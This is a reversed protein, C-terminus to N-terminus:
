RRRLPRLVRAASFEVLSAVALHARGARTWGSRGHVRPARLSPVSVQCRGLSAVLALVSSPRGHVRRLARLVPADILVLDAGHAPLSRLGAVHRMLWYYIAGLRAQRTHGPAAPPRAAWVVDAGRRWQTLLAPIVEPSDQLDAALVVAADGRAARCGRLIAAHSGGRKGLRISRVCPHLHGLEAIVTPTADRSGDDVIVWEWALDLRALTADLRTWLLPLSEAEDFAPTVVSLLRPLPRQAASVHEDACRAAEASM